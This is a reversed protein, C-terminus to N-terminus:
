HRFVALAHGARHATGPLLPALLQQVAVIVYINIARFRLKYPFKQRHKFIFRLNNYVPHEPHDLGIRVRNQAIQRLDGGIGLGIASGHGFKRRSTGAKGAPAFRIRESRGFSKRGPHTGAKEKPAPDAATRHVCWAPPLQVAPRGARNGTKAAARAFICFVFACPALLAKRFITYQQDYLPIRRRRAARNEPAATETDWRRKKCNQRKKRM